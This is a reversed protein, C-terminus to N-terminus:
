VIRSRNTPREVARWLDSLDFHRWRQPIFQWRFQLLWHENVSELGQKLQM